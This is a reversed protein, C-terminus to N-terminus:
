GERRAGQTDRLADALNRLWIGIAHERFAPEYPLTMGSRAWAKYAPVSRRQSEREFPLDFQQAMAVEKVQRQGNSRSATYTNRGQFLNHHRRPSVWAMFLMSKEHWDAPM